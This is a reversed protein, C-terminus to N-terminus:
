HAATVVPRPAVGMEGLLQARDYYERWAKVKGNEIELIGVVPVKGHHGNYVFEDTREIVVVNGVVGINHIHLTISEIGAGLAEIRAAIQARGTVPEIMMSHLVGDEAFLEGVQKWDRVNWAHIMQNVVAIRPDEAMIREQAPPATPTRSMSAMPTVVIAAMALLTGLHM